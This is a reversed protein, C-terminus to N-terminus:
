KDAPEAAPQSIYKLVTVGTSALDPKGNRHFNGAVLGRGAAGLPLPLQFTGDGNGLLLVGAAGCAVDLKGDRNFDNIVLSGDGSDLERPTATVTASQFTGNGKGLLVAISEENAVVLDLRGDKDYDVFACGTNQSRAWIIHRRRAEDLASIAEAPKQEALTAAFELDFEKGLVAGASLLESCTWAVVSVKSSGKGVAVFNLVALAGSGSVGGSGPLRAVTLMAACSIPM